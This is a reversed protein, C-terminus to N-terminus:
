RAPASRECGRDAGEARGHRCGEGRLRGTGACRWGARTTGYDRQGRALGQERRRLEFPRRQQQADRWSGVRAVPAGREVFYCAAAAASAQVEGANRRFVIRRQHPRAVCQQDFDAAAIRIAERERELARERARAAHVLLRRQDNRSVSFQQAREDRSVNQAVRIGHEYQATREVDPEVRTMDYPERGPGTSEPHEVIGGRDHSTAASIRRTQRSGSSTVRADATSWSTAASCIHSGDPRAGTGSRATVHPDARRGVNM